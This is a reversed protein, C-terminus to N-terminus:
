LKIMFIQSISGKDGNSKVATNPNAQALFNRTVSVAKFTTPKKVSNSRAHHKIESEDKALADSTTLKGIETDSGVSGDVGSYEAPAEASEREHGDEITSM